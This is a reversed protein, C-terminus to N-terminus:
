EVRPDFDFKGYKSFFGYQKMWLTLIKKMLTIERKMKMRRTVVKLFITLVTNMMAM